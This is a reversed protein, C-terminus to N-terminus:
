RQIGAIMSSTMVSVRQLLAKWVVVKVNFPLMRQYVNLNEHNFAM